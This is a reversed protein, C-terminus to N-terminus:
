LGYSHYKILGKMPRQHIETLEFQHLAASARLEAEFAAAVGGTAVIYREAPYFQRLAGFFAGFAERCISEPGHSRVFPVLSALFANAGPRRYIRELVEAYGMGLWREFEERLGRGEEGSRYIHRLLAKGLSTGSGEDGLVYGLPPMNSTIREGDYHGCNSGTGLIAALGASRGLMSRAAGLLDSHVECRRAAPLALRVKDCVEGSVCGAGYFHIEEPDIGAPLAESFAHRLEDASLMLANVGPSEFCRTAGCPDILAWEVKSSGADAILKM